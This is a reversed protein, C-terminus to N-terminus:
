YAKTTDSVEVGQENILLYLYMFSRGNHSHSYLGGKPSLPLPRPAHFCWDFMFYVVLCEPKRSGACNKPLFLFRKYKRIQMKSFRTMKTLCSNRHRLRNVFLVQLPQDVKNLIKLWLLYNRNTIKKM